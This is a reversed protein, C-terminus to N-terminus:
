AGQDAMRGVAWHRRSRLLRQQRHRTGHSQQRCAARGQQRGRHARQQLRGVRRKGLQVGLAARALCQVCAVASRLQRDHRGLRAVLGDAGVDLARAQRLVGLQLALQRGLRGGRVCLVLGGLAHAAVGVCLPARVLRVRVGVRGEGDVLQRARRRADALLLQLRLLPGHQRKTGRHHQGAGGLARGAARQQRLRARGELAVCGPEARGDDHVGDALEVRQGHLGLLLLRRSPLRARHQACVALPHCGQARAVDTVPHVWHQGPRHM